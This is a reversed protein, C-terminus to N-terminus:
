PMAHHVKEISGDSYMYILTTNPKYETEQGLLNVIKVLEKDQSSQSDLEDIELVCTTLSLNEWIHCVLDLFLAFNGQQAVSSLDNTTVAVTIDYETNHFVLSNGLGNGGHGYFM